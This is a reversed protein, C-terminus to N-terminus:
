VDLCFRLRHCFPQEQKDYWTYKALVTLLRQSISTNRYILVFLLKGKIVESAQNTVVEIVMPVNMNLVAQSGRKNAFYM